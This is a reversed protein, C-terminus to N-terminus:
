TACGANGALVTAPGGENKGSVRAVLAADNLLEGEEPNDRAWLLERKMGAEDNQIFSVQFVFKTFVSSIM